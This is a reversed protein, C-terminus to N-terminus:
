YIKDVVEKLKEETLPKPIYGSITHMKAVRIDEDDTSSTLMVIYINERLSADLREFEDLFEFGDMVPMNIDLFILLPKFFGNLEANVAKENILDLAQQGNLATCVERAIGMDDVIEKTVFNCIDDDDVLLVTNIDIM